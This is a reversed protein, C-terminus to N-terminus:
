NNFSYAKGLVNMWAWGEDKPIQEVPMAASM